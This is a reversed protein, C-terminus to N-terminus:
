RDYKNLLEDVKNKLKNYEVGNKTSNKDYNKIMNILEDIDSKSIGYPITLLDKVDKHLDDWEEKAQESAYKAGKTALNYKDGIIHWMESSNMIQELVSLMGSPINKLDMNKTNKEYAQERAKELAEAHKEPSGWDSEVIDEIAEKAEPNQLEKKLEIHSILSNPNGDWTPDIKYIDSERENIFDIGIEGSELEIAEIMKLSLQQNVNLNENEKIYALTREIQEDLSLSEAPAKKPTQNYQRMAKEFKAYAASQQRRALSEERRQKAHKKIKKPPQKLSQASLGAAVARDYRTDRRKLRAAKRDKKAM